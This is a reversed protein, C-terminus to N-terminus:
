GVGVAGLVYLCALMTLSCLSWALLLVMLTIVGIQGIERLTILPMPWGWFNACISGVGLVRVRVMLFFPPMVTALLWGTTRSLPLWMTGRMITIDILM